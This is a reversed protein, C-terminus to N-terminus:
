ALVILLVGGIIVVTSMMHLMTLVEGLICPSAVVNVVLAVSGLGAVPWVCTLAM